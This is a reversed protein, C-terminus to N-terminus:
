RYIPATRTAVLVVEDATVLLPGAFGQEAPATLAAATVAFAPDIARLDTWGRSRMPVAVTTMGDHGAVLASRYAMSALLTVVDCDGMPRLGDRPALRNRRAALLAMAKLYARALFWWRAPDIGAAVWVDTPVVMVENPARPDLGLIGLGLDLASGPVHERVWTPGPHRSHGRPLGVPRAREGLEPLTLQAIERRALLWRALRERGADSDPNHGALAQRFQVWSVEVPIPGTLVVGKGAPQLDLDYLVSVALAGLRLARSETASM